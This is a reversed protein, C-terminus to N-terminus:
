NDKNHIFPFTQKHAGAFKRQSFWTLNQERLSITGGLCSWSIKFSKDNFTGEISIGVIGM